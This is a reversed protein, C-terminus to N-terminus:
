LRAGMSLELSLMVPCKYGWFFIMKFYFLGFLPIFTEEGIWNACSNSKSFTIRFFSLSSRRSFFDDSDNLYLTFLYGSSLLESLWVDKMLVDNYPWSASPNFKYGWSYSSDPKIVESESKSSAM